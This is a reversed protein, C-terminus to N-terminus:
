TVWYQGDARHLALIGLFAPVNEQRELLHSDKLIEVQLDISINIM